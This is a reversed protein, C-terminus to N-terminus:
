LVRGITWSFDVGVRYKTEDLSKACKNGVLIGLASAQDLLCIGPTLVM